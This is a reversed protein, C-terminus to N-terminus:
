AAVERGPFARRFLDEGLTLRFLALRAMEDTYEPHRRRIGALAIERLRDSSEFVMKIRGQPGIKRLVDFQVRAAELSTDAPLGNAEM